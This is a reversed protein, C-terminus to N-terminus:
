LKKLAKTIEGIQADLARLAGAVRAAQQNAEDWRGAEAAERVGPLTKAGYGTNLGPAYIQHKYWPRGPLGGALTLAREARYIRQNVAALRDPPVNPIRKLAKKYQSEFERASKEIKSLEKAVVELDLDANEPVLKDIEQLYGDVADVFGGFEFPMLPADALRLLATEMVRALTQGYVFNTDSFHSYWYFSDYISHYIGGPATGGFSLNLSAVGAHDLFASYDSGSGLAEISNGPAHLNAPNGHHARAVDLLSQGAPDSVDRLVEMIFAQLTHSGGAGIWGTDNTDSNLYVAMKLDIEDAHKEVWETSGLLGWEEGDWLALKITRRPKWGQRALEALSRATELVVAAGSAPDQAGNVWADHHNGYLVWQDPSESGPITAIVDHLPGTTWNFDLKLHVTAPGPGLHYTLPLAGRWAEPAVPGKLNELLPTADEYSIPLVPIKQLTEAESLKLRKSGKESAWGPSLPDGPHLETEMVSGRQVGGPPRFPGVPYDDGRFYGDDRPDSYIICGVAGNLFAMRPKIGRWNKGYRAIAIKGRVDIGQQKLFAYDEPGGYNVYVLPATVDGSASYANFTPLQDPEDSDPDRPIPPEQLKAAYQSPAIMELLRVKPTPMLAEFEEIHADLGWSQLLGLLERAVKESRPSGAEHPRASMRAIYAKINEPRPIAGAQAELAHEAAWQRVPFGRIPTQADLLFASLLFTLLPKM